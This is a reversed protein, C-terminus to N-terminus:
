KTVVLANVTYYSLIVIDVQSLQCRITVAIPQLHIVLGADENVNIKKEAAREKSQFQNGKFTRKKKERLRNRKSGM